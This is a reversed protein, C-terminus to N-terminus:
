QTGSTTAGRVYRQRVIKQRTHRAAVFKAYKRFEQQIEGARLRITDCKRVNGVGNTNQMLQVNHLRM